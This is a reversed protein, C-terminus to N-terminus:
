SIHWLILFTQQFTMKWVNWDLVVIAVKSVVYRTPFFAFGVHCGYAIEKHKVKVLRPLKPSGSLDERWSAVAPFWRPKRKVEITALSQVIDIACHIHRTMTFLLAYPRSMGFNFLLKQQTSRSPPTSSGDDCIRKTPQM